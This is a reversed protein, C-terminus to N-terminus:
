PRHFDGGCLGWVGRGTSSADDEGVQYRGQRQFPDGPAFVTAWGDAVQRRGIDYKSTDVYSLLRGFDDRRDQSSDGRVTVARGKPALRKLNTTAEPGGCEEPKDPKRTEPADIGLLRVTYRKRPKTRRVKVTDGDVVSVIKARFKVPRPPKTTSENCPCPLSECAVGDNDADLRDPDRDPGGNDIFYSQAEAQNSFDGCDRDAANVSSPLALGIAIAFCLWPARKVLDL